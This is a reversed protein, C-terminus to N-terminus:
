IAIRKNGCRKKNLNGKEKYRLLWMNVTNKNINMVKAIERISKGERHKIIIEFKQLETLQM